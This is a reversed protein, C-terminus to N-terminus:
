GGIQITLSTGLILSSTIAEPRRHPGFVIRAPRDERAWSSFRTLDFHATARGTQRDADVTLVLPVIEARYIPQVDDPGEATPRRRRVVHTRFTGDPQPPWRGDAFNLTASIVDDLHVGDPVALVDDAVRMRRFFFTEGRYHYEVTRGTEDYVVDSRSERGRVVFRGSTRRPAFRGERLAGISTVQNTIGDGEGQIRVEYRGAGRDIAEDITGDLHFALAGYLLGVDATYTARRPEVAAGAARRPLLASGLLLALFARRRM